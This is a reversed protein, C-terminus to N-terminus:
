RSPEQEHRSITQHLAQESLTETPQEHDPPPANYRSRITNCQCLADPPCEPELCLLAIAFQHLLSVIGPNTPLLTVGHPADPDLLHPERHILGILCSMDFLLHDLSPAASDERVRLTAPRRQNLRNPPYTELWVIPTRNETVQQVPEDGEAQRQDHRQDHRQPPVPLRLIELQSLRAATTVIALASFAGPERPDPWSGGPERRHAYLQALAEGRAREGASRAEYWLHAYETSLLIRWLRSDSADQRARTAQALWRALLRDEEVKEAVRPSNRAIRRLCGENGRARRLINM